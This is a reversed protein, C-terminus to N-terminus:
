SLSSGYNRISNRQRFGSEDVWILSNPDYISVSSMFQARLDDSRQFAIHEIKKRTFGLRHITRCITSEHVITGTVDCLKAQLESLYISPKDVIYQILLTQEFDSLLLQPGHKQKTPELDGKTYFLHVYRRVSRESIFLLQGVDTFSMDRLIVLWVARWRLDTSYSVPM